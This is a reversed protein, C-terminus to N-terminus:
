NGKVNIFVGGDEIKVPYTKLNVCVPAGLAKGTAIDFRGQHLPCEIVNDQIFGWELHQREHTCYGDSAFFGSATHYICFSKDEYDFRILDEEEVEDIM